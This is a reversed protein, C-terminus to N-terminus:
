ASFFDVYAELLKDRFEGGEVYLNQYTAFFPESIICYSNGRSLFQGGRDRRARQKIDRDRNPMYKDLLEDLRKALKMGNPSYYLIEHGNVSKSVADNFHFSVSYDAGWEDIRKHLDIQRATYKGAYPNEYFVKFENGSNVVKPHSLIDKILGDNFMFESVGASGIAGQYIENHGVCLAYKGM